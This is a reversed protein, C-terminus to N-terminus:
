FSLEVTFSPMLPCFTPFYLGEWGFATAEYERSDTILFHVCLCPPCHKLLLPGPDCSRVSPPSSAAHRPERSCRSVCLGLSGRTRSCGAFSPLHGAFQGIVCVDNETSCFLTTYVCVFTFELM